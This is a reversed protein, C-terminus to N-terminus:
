PSARDHWQNDVYKVIQVLVRYLHRNSKLDFQRDHEDHSALGDRKAEFSKVFLRRFCRRELTRREATRRDEM